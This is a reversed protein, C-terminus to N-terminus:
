GRFVLVQPIFTFSYPHESSDTKIPGNRFQFPLGMWWTLVFRACLNLHQRSEAFFLRVRIGGSQSRQLAFVKAVTEQDAPVSDSESVLRQSRYARRFKRCNWTVLGLFQVEGFKASQDNGLYTLYTLNHGHSYGRSSTCFVWLARNLNSFIRVKRSKCQFMSGSNQGSDTWNLRNKAM